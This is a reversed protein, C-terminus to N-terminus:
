VIGKREHAKFAESKVRLADELRDVDHGCHELGALPFINLFRVPRTTLAVKRTGAPSEFILPASIEVPQGDRVVIMSGELLINFHETTHEHGIIFTDAPARMERIYVGGSFRHECPLEVKDSEPLALARAEITEIDQKTALIPVM